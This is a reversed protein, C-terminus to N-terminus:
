IDRVPVYGARRAEQECERRTKGWAITNGWDNKALWERVPKFCFHGTIYPALYATPKRSKM